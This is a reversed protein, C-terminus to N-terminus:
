CSNADCYGPRAVFRFAHLYRQPKSSIAISSTTRIKRQYGDPRHVTLISGSNGKCLPSTFPLAACHLPWLSRRIMKEEAFAEQERFQVILIANYDGVTHLERLPRGHM